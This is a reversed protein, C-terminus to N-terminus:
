VNDVEALAARADAAHKKFDGQRTTFFPDTKRAYAEHASACVEWAMAAEQIWRKVRAESEALQTRLDKVADNVAVATFYAREPTAMMSIDQVNVQVQTLPRTPWKCESM